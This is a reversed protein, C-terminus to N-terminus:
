AAAEVGKSWISPCLTNAAANTWVQATYINPVDSWSTHAFMEYAAANGGVAQMRGCLTYGTQVAQNANYVSIGRANLLQIFAMESGTDASANGAGTAAIAAAAAGGVLAAKTIKRM